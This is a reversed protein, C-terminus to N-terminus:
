LLDDIIRLLDSESVTSTATHVVNKEVWFITKEPGDDFLLAESNRVELKEPASAAGFRNETPKNSRQLASQNLVPAATALSVPLRPFKFSHLILKAGGTLTFTQRVVSYFLVQVDERLIKVRRITAPVIAIEVSDRRGEDSSLGLLEVDAATQAEAFTTPKFDDKTVYTLIPNPHKAADYPVGPPVQALAAQACFLVGLFIATRIVGMM